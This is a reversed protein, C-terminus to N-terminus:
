DVYQLCLDMNSDIETSECFNYDEMDCYYSDDKDKQRIVCDKLRNAIYYDRAAFINDMKLKLVDQNNNKGISKMLDHLVMFTNPEEERIQVALTDLFKSIYELSNTENITESKNVCNLYMRGNPTISYYNVHGIREVYLLDFDSIRKIFNSLGSSSFNLDKKLELGSAVRKSQIYLLTKTLYKYQKSLNNYLENKTSNDSLEICLNALTSMSGYYYIKRREADEMNLLNDLKEYNEVLPKFYESMKGISNSKISTLVTKYVRHELDRLASSNENIFDYISIKEIYEM